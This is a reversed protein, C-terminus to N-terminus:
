RTSHRQFSVATASCWYRPRASCTAPARTTVSAPGSICCKTSSPPGSIACQRFVRSSASTTAPPRESRRRSCCSRPSGCATRRATRQWPLDKRGDSEYWAAAGARVGGRERRVSSPSTARAPTAITRIATSSGTTSWASASPSSRSARIRASARPKPSWAHMINWDHLWAMRDRTSRTARRDPLRHREAGAAHLADVPGGADCGEPRGRALGGRRGPAEGSGRRCRRVRGGEVEARGAPTGACAAAAECEEWQGRRMAVTADIGESAGSSIGLESALKSFRLAQEDEGRMLYLTPSTRRWCRRARTSNTRADRRSSRRCRPPRGEAAPDLVLPTAHTREARAFDRLLLRVGCRAPQRQESNIQALVAHAEGIKPDLALAQRASQEAMPLYKEEDGDESSYGPLVVYASALAAHARAFGPDRALASQYLEVARRLNDEGRRKWIARAQLYSSTPKSTRPPRRTVSRM